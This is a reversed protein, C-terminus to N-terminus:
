KGVSFNYLSSISVINNGYPIISDIHKKGEALVHYSEHLVKTEMTSYKIRQVVFGSYFSSPEDITRSLYLYGSDYVIDLVIGFGSVSPITISNTFLGNVNHYIKAPGSLGKCCQEVGAIVIDYKKDNNFDILEVAFLAKRLTEIPFRNYDVTFTGDKNNILFYLGTSRYDDTLVIDPYGDGNIDAASASSCRCFDLVPLEVNKYTGDRQGLLMRQREGLGNDSDSGFCAFFVSPMGNQMFDAVIAKGAHLCGETQNPKLIKSTNDVWTGNVSQYFKIHGKRNLDLTNVINYEMSHIIMSYTGDRMFDAFAVAPPVAEGCNFRDGCPKWNLPINQSGLVKAAVMENEFSSALVPIPSSQVPVLKTDTVPASSGGGGCATLILSLSLVALRM